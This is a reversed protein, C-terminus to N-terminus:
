FAYLYDFARNTIDLLFKMLIYNCSFLRKGAVNALLGKSVLRIQSGM